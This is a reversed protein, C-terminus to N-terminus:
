AADQISQSSNVLSLFKNHMHIDEAFVGKVHTTVTTSHQKEVGRMMMCMHSAEILLAIGKPALYENLVQAIQDTLREQLQLRRAFIDIIRPVKSLGLVKGDPIYAISVKGFFPLLHHECLSYFEVDKIFVLGEFSEKFIADNIISPIDKEYGCTLEHYAKAMRKPTNLLGERHPDEGFAILLEKVLLETKSPRFSM